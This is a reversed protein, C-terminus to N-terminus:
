GTRRLLLLVGEEGTFVRLQTRFGPPPDLAAVVAPLDELRFMFRTYIETSMTEDDFGRERAERQLRELSLREPGIDQVRRRVLPECAAAMLMDALSEDSSSDDSDILFAAEILAESDHLEGANYPRTPMHVHTAATLCDTLCAHNPWSFGLVARSRVLSSPTLPHRSLPRSHGM